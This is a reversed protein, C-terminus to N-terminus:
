GGESRRRGELLSRLEDQDEKRTAVLLRDGPEFITAGQPVYSEGGRVLLVILATRPLPLDVVQRGVVPSTDPLTVEILNPEARKAAPSQRSQDVVGLARAVPGLLTGQILVSTLVVFFVLHFLSQSGNVGQTLPITALIIPTAGRLGTWSVLLRDRLDMSKALALSAFVAAPRGILILFLSVSIGALAVGPLQSPYVLLGFLLFMTIQMLWALGDHFQILSLKHVFTKRGMALGAVFVALFGSGGIITTLGYTVMVVAITTVGYLGVYDLRLRNLVRVAVEGTVLGTALGLSMQQFFSPVMAQWGRSPDLVLATLGITLFVAMPDNLGAEAELLGALRGRLRLSRARLVGFVAAADTSAVISGLLLGQLWNMGLFQACFAAIAGATVAVGVTALSAGRWILPRMASWETDLGGAFLIYALAVTGVSQALGADDFWFGGPGDSGLLMGLGMFLLLAPIGLKTSAKSCFIAALLLLGALSMAMEFTLGAPM